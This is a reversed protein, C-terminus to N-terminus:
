CSDSSIHNYNIGSVHICGFSDKWWLTQGVFQRATSMFRIGLLFQFTNSKEDFFGLWLFTSWRFTPDDPCDCRFYECTSFLRFVDRFIVSPEAFTTNGLPQSYHTCFNMPILYTNFICNSSITERIEFLLRRM